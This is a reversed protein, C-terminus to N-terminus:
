EQEGGKPLEGVPLDAEVDAASEASPDSGGARATTELGEKDWRSLVMGIDLLITVQGDTKGMGLIFETNVATGFSPAPDIDASSVDLVESVRDVVVGVEMDGVYMVIICTQETHEVEQMGFKLRLDVITIVKGRLNIVGKVYEPTRPIATIGMMGFIERVTLIEVGYTEEALVYTLYKGGLQRTESGVGAAETVETM